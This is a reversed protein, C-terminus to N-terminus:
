CETCVDACESRCPGKDQATIQADGGNRDTAASPFNGAFVCHSRQLLSHGASMQQKYAERESWESHACANGVQSLVSCLQVGSPRRTPESDILSCITQFLHPPLSGFNHTASIAQVGVVLCQTLVAHRCAGAPHSEVITLLYWSHAAAAM